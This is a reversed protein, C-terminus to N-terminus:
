QPPLITETSGLVDWGGRRKLDAVARKRANAKVDAETKGKAMVKTSYSFHVNVPIEEGSEMADAREVMQEVAKTEYRQREAERAQADRAKQEEARKCDALVSPHVSGAHESEHEIYRRPTSLTNWLRGYYTRMEASIDKPTVGDKRKAFMGVWEPASRGSDILKADRTAGIERVVAFHCEPTLKPSLEDPGLRQRVLALDRIFKVPYSLRRALTELLRDSHLEDVAIAALRAEDYLAINSQQRLPLWAEMLATLAAGQQLGRFRKEMGATEPATTGSRQLTPVVQEAVSM